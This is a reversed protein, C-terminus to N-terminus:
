RTLVAVCEGLSNSVCKDGGEDKAETNIYKIFHGVIEANGTAPDEKCKDGPFGTVYFYAFDQIPVEENGLLSEGKANVTGYPMIFVQIIRSDDSKIKPVGGNNNNQWNNPCYYHMGPDNTIREEIGERTPGTDKGNLGVTLCDYPSTNVTCGPDSTNITYKGECGTKLSERYENGSQKAPPPCGVRVGQEGEFRLQRLPDSFGAANGISSAVNATVVLKHTCAACMEYSDAGESGPVPVQASPESVWAAALSGSSAGAAYSRQVDQLTSTPTGKEAACPSNTVKPDCTVQLDVRNSGEKSLAVGAASWQQTTSSYTMAVAAGEGVIANVRVGPPNPTAGLDVKATVGISCGKGNSAFYPDSCTGAQLTVERAIPAKYSGTGAGTSSWGQIHLLSPGTAASEDFCEVYAHGCTTDSKNGSLAIVVGIHPHNILVESPASSWVDQGKSNTGQKSLTAKTLIADNNDEDVFYAAAALPATEAVALPEIGTATSAQRIEVRAHANIYPVSSLAQWYWPLNTETVKLDIMGAECPEKETVTTDVPSSQNYYYQSNFTERVNTHARELDGVQLNYIPEGAIGSYQEATAKIAPNGVAPSTFCEQFSQAAALVGADAQVQLHRKHLFWNGADIAFAAFLVVVPAFVAFMVLAAGRQDSAVSLTRHTLRM